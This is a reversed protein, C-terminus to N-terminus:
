GGGGSVGRARDPTGRAGAPARGVPSWRVRWFLLRESGILCFLILGNFV